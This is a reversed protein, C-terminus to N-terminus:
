HRESCTPASRADSNFHFQFYAFWSLGNKPERILLVAHKPADTGLLRKFRGREGTNRRLPAEFNVGLPRMWVVNKQPM